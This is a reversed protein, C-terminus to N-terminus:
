TRVKTVLMVVDSYYGEFFKGFSPEQLTCGTYSIFQYPDVAYRPLDVVVTGSNRVQNYFGVLQTFDTASVLVWNLNYQRVAPYIPRGEGSIGKSERNIWNHETPPLNFNVGSVAFTGTIGQM